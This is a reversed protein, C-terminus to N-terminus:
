ELHQFLIIVSAFLYMGEPFLQEFGIILVSTGRSLHESSDIFDGLFLFQHQEPIKKIKVVHLVNSLTERELKAHHFINLFVHYVNEFGVIFPSM